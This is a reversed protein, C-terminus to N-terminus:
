STDQSGSAAFLFLPAWNTVDSAKGPAGSTFFGGALAPSKLSAPKIGSDPLNGPPPFSLGSQLIRAQLIGRVSSGPPNCDMPGCLTACVQACM